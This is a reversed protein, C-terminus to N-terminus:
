TACVESLDDIGGEHHLYKLACRSGVKYSRYSANGPPVRIIQMM